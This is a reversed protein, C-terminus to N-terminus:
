MNRGVIGDWVGRIFDGATHAMWSLRDLDPGSGYYGTDGGDISVTEANTLPMLGYDQMKLEKM